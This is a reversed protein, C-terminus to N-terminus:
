AHRDSGRRPARCGRDVRVWDDDTLAEVALTGDIVMEILAREATAGLGRGLMYGTEAVVLATTVLPGADSALLDDCVTHHRDDADGVAVLVGTDVLLM